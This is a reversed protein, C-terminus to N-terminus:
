GQLQKIRNIVTARGRHAQEYRLVDALEQEDLDDLEPLIRPASLDDYDAIVSPARGDTETADDDAARAARRAAEARGREAAMRGALRTLAVQGRGREAMKPLLDRVELAIGLPVYVFADLAQETLSKEHGTSM